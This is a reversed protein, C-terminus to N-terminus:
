PARYKFALLVFAVNDEPSSSGLWVRAITEIQVLHSMMKQTLGILTEVHNVDGFLGDTGVVTMWHNDRICHITKEKLFIPTLMDMPAGEREMKQKIDKNGIVRTCELVGGVRGRVCWPEVRKYEERNSTNHVEM